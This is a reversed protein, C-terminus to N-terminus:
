NMGPIKRIIWNILYWLMLAGDFTLVVLGASLLTGIPIVYSYANVLGVFYAFASTFSSPLHGTPLFGLLSNVLFYLISLFFTVIM